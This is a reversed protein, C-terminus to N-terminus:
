PGNKRALTMTFEPAKTGIENLGKFVEACHPCLWTEFTFTYDDGVDITIHTLANFEEKCGDRQCHRAIEPEFSEYVNHGGLEGIKKRSM